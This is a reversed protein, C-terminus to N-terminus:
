RPSLPMEPRARKREIVKVLIVGVEFLVYMPVGMIGM